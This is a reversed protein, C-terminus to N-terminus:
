LREVAAKEFRTFSWIGGALLVALSAFCSILSTTSPPTTELFGYKVMEIPATIPNLEAIPQYKPPMSSIPYIVPTIFYWFQLVYGFSYRIDRTYYSWPATWLGLALGYLAALLIGAVGIMLHVSPVVYLKGKTIWFYVVAVIAVLVYLLFDLAAPVSVAALRPLWPSQANRIFSRSMSLGRTAWMNTHQFVIWGCSGFTFFIIYPRDGSQVGLVGGFLLAKSLIDIGPRLPIWVWGLWTNRVRRMLYHKGVYPIMSRYRWLERLRSVPSSDWPEIVRIPQVAPVAGPLLRADAKM